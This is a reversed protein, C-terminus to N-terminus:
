ASWRWEATTGQGVPEAPLDGPGRGQEVVASAERPPASVLRLLLEDAAEVVPGRGRAGPAVGETVDSVLRVDDRIAAVVPVDLHDCVADAVDDDMRAGRLVVWPECPRRLRSGGSGSASWSASEASDVLRRLLPVTVAASALQPVRTGVVVVWDDVLPAIAGVVSADRGLDLVTVDHARSLGAVVDRLRRDAAGAAGTPSRSESDPRPGGALVSISGLRPLERALGVGDVIGAVDQLRDWRWGPEQEVGLVVDLRGGFVDLDVAVVERGAAAARVAVAAALTTAGAGGSAPIVAIVHGMSGGDRIARVRGLPMRGATSSGGCGAPIHVLGHPLGGFVATAGTRPFVPAVERSQRRPPPALARTARGRFLLLLM